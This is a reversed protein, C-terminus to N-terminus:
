HLDRKVSTYPSVVYDYIVIVLLLLLLFLLPLLLCAPTLFIVQHWLQRDSGTVVHAESADGRDQPPPYMDHSSSSVHVVHAESADGRDQLHSFETGIFLM